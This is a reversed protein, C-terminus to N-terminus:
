DYDDKSVLRTKCTRCTASPSYWEYMRVTMRRRRKCKPCYIVKTILTPNGNCIAGGGCGADQKHKHM